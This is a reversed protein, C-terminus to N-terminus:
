AAGGVKVRVLRGEWQVTGPGRREIRIALQDEGQFGPKAVYKLYKGEGSAEGYTPARTVIVRYRAYDNYDYQFKCTQGALVQLSGDAGRKCGFTAFEYRCGGLLLAVLVLLMLGFWLQRAPEPAAQVVKVKAQPRM